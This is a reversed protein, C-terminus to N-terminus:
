QGDDAQLCGVADHRRPGQRAPGDSRFAAAHRRFTRAPPGEGRGRDPDHLDSAAAMAPARRRSRRSARRGQDRFRPDHRLWALEKLKVYNIRRKLDFRPATRCTERIEKLKLYNARGKCTIQVAAAAIVTTM